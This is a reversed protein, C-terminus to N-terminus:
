SSGFASSLCSDLGVAPSAGRVSAVSASVCGTGSSGGLSESRVTDRLPDSLIGETGGVGGNLGEATLGSTRRRSLKDMAESVPVRDEVGSGLGDMLRGRIMGDCSCVCLRESVAEVPLVTEATSIDVARSVIAFELSAFLDVGSLSLTWRANSKTREPSPPSRGRSIKSGRRNAHSVFFSFNIIALRSQIELSIEYENKTSSEDRGLKVEGGGEGPPGLPRCLPEM